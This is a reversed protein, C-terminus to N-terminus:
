HPQKEQPQCIRWLAQRQALLREQRERSAAMVERRLRGSGQQKLWNALGTLDSIEGLATQWHRLPTLEDASAGQLLRLYRLQKIALRLRHYRKPKGPKLQDYCTMVQTVASDRYWAFWGEWPLSAGDVLGQQQAALERLLRRGQRRTPRASGPPRQALLRHQWRTADPWRVLWSLRVAWDRRANSARILATLTPRLSPRWPDLLALLPCASLLIRVCVRFDHCQQQSWDVQALLGALVAIQGQLRQQLCEIPSSAPM